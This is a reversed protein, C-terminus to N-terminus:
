LPLMLLVRHDLFGFESEDNGCIGDSTQKYQHISYTGVADGTGRRDARVHIWGCYVRIRFKRRVRSRTGRSVSFGKEVPSFGVPASRAEAATKELMMGRVRKITREEYAANRRM